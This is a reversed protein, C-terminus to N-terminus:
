GLAGLGHIRAMTGIFSNSRGEDEEMDGKALGFDTLRVHGENDLLVNEPKLDRHMIGRFHLYSIASVIEATYLKAVPESFTGQLRAYAHMCLPILVRM